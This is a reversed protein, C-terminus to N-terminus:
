EVRRLEKVLHLYEAEIKGGSKIYLVAGPALADLYALTHVVLRDYGLERTKNLAANMLVSGIGGMRYSPLVLVGFFSAEGREPHPDVGTLGGIKNEVKAALWPSQRMSEAFENLIKQNGGKQEIWWDWYPQLAEVFVHAAEDVDDNSVEVTAIGRDVREKELVRALDWAIRLIRRVPKFDFRQYAEIYPQITLVTAKLQRCEKSTAYKLAAEILGNMVHPNSFADKVALYRTEVFGEAALNFAGVCGVAKAGEEAIFFGEPSFSPPSM